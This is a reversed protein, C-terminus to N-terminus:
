QAYSRRSDACPECWGNEVELNRYVLLRTLALLELLLALPEVGLEVLSTVVGLLSELLGSPFSCGLDVVCRVLEVLLNDLTNVVGLAPEAAPEASFLNNQPMM